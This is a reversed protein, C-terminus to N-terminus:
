RLFSRFPEMMRLYILESPSLINEAVDLKTKFIDQGNNTSTEEGLMTFKDLIDMEEIKLFKCITQKTLEFDFFFSDFNIILFRDSFERQINTAESELKFFSRFFELSSYKAWLEERTFISQGVLYKRNNLAAVVDKYSRTIYIIKSNPYCELFPKFKGPIGDSMTAFFKLQELTNMNLFQGAMERYLVSMINPAKWKFNPAMVKCSWQRDFDYFDFQLNHSTLGGNGGNDMYRIKRHSMMELQFYKAESAMREKLQQIDCNELSRKASHGNSLDFPLLEHIPSVFVNKHGDLM